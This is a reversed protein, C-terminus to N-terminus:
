SMKFSMIQEPLRSSSPMPTERFNSFSNGTITVNSLLAGSSGTQMSLSIFNGSTALSPDNVFVNGSINIGSVVANGPTDFLAGAAILVGFAPGGASQEIGTFRLSQLTFNSAIVPLLIGTTGMASGDITVTPQGNGDVLGIISIGNRYINPNGLGGTTSITQGALAQAFTITITGSGTANNAAFLAARLSIGNPGPNAILACPSSADGEATDDTNTVVLTPCAQQAVAPAAFMTAVLFIIIIISRM